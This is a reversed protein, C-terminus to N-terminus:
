IVTCLKMVDQEFTDRSIAKSKVSSRYNYITRPTYFLLASIESSETVGLRVLAFIRLETTLLSM